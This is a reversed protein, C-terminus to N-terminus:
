FGHVMPGYLAMAYCLAMQSKTIQTISWIFPDALLIENSAPVNVDLNIRVMSRMYM